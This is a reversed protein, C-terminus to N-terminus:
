GVMDSSASAKRKGRLRKILGSIAAVLAVVGAVLFKWIKGLLGTKAAVAGAGGAILAALGIEAVKDGSVWEAYSKGSKWSFHGIIDELHAKTSELTALDTALTVAMYGHRGLLRTNYNLLQIGQSEALVCWVLNHSDVDYHPEEYWGIVNIAPFGREIRTKNAEDNAQKISELIAKSDLSEKEDDKVYGIPDYEFWVAWEEDEAKACVVGVELKSVPDGLYELIERTDEGDAFVYEDGLEIQAVDGLDVISPGEIWTIEPPAQASVRAPAPLSVGVSILSLVLIAFLGKLTYNSM